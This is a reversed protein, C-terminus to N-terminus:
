RALGEPAKGGPWGYTRERVLLVAAALRQDDPLSDRGPLPGDASSAGAAPSRRLAARVVAGGALLGFLPGLWVLWNVGRLPPRLRVFEGYSREFYALVQEEDYGAGLLSRVEAKMNAAMTAPSDAVSLGQCVPCRLLGGVEEVRADLATGSLPVGKPAGVVFLPDAAAASPKVDPAQASASGALLLVALLTV